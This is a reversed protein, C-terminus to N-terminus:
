RAEGQAEGRPEARTQGRARRFDGTLPQHHRRPDWREAPAQEGRIRELLGTIAALIANTAEALVIADLPRNQWPSLDVPPGAWVHVLPHRFVHLRKGYPELLEQAGWQAIPIVPVGTTLAIRAAGTRGVMPWLNPDRTLTGEAYVAVCEGARVAEVAAALSRAADVSGRRVPIQGAGAVIRGVFPVQFVAEKALFRPPIGHDVLFHALTIPDIHTIHNSCAVFGSATPLREAGRWDRRTLLRMAPRLVRVAFRYSASFERATVIREEILPPGGRPRPRPNM